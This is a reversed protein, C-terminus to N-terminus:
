GGFDELAWPRTRCVGTALPVHVSQMCGALNSQGGSTAAEATLEKHRVYTMAMKRKSYEVNVQAFSQQKSAAPDILTLQIRSKFSLLFCRREVTARRQTQPGTRRRADQASLRM